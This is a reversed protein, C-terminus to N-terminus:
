TFLSPPREELIEIILNFDDTCDNITALDTTDNEDLHEMLKSQLSHSLESFTFSGLNDSLALFEVMTPPLASTRENYATVDNNYHFINVGADDAYMSCAVGLCCYNGGRHLYGRGKPFNGSKLAQIWNDIRETTTLM